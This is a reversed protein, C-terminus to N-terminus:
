LKKSVTPPKPGWEWILTTTPLNLVIIKARNPSVENSLDYFSLVFPSSLINKCHGIVFQQRFHTHSNLCLIIAALPLSHKQIIILVFQSNQKLLVLAKFNPAIPYTKLVFLSKTLGVFVCVSNKSSPKQQLKCFRDFLM